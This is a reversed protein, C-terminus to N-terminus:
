AGPSSPTPSSPSPSSPGPSSPTPRYILLRTTEGNSYNFGDVRGIQVAAHGAAKLASLFADERRAEVIAPRGDGIAEAADQPDDLETQGGLLFTLSPEGYGVLAVPGPTVGGRPDLDAAGLAAAVRKSLWLTQLRPAVGVLLALHGCIGLVGAAVLASWLRGKLALGAGALGCGALLAAAVIAWALADGGGFRLAVSVALLAYLAGALAQLAAGIKLAIPADAPAPPLRLAAGCLWAVAGFFVVGGALPLGRGFEM